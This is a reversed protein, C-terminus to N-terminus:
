RLSADPLVMGAQNAGVATKVEPGVYRPLKATQDITGSRYRVWYYILKPYETAVTKWGSPKFWWSVPQPTQQGTAVPEVAVAIGSDSFVQRFTWLARRSHYASTVVLLSKLQHKQAYDLARVAESYTSTVPETIVDVKDNGIGARRLEEKEWEYTFLNRQQPESWRSLVNENTLIIRPARGAHLLEAARRSREELFATNSLVLIADAKEIGEASVILGKAAIWALLPWAVVLIAISWVVTRRSKLVGLRSKQSTAVSPFALSDAESRVLM